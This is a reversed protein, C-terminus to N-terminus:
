DAASNRAVAPCNQLRVGKSLTDSTGAPRSAALWDAFAHTAEALGAEAGESVTHLDRGFVFSQCTEVRTVANRTHMDYIRWQVDITGSGRLSRDHALPRLMGYAPACATMDLAAISAYIRLGTHPTAESLWDDESPQDIKLGTAALVQAVLLAARGRDPVVDRWVIRGAPACIMGARRRGVVDTGKMEFRVPAVTYSPPMPAPTTQATAPGAALLGVAAALHKIRRM